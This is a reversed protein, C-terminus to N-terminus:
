DEQRRRCITKKSEITKKVTHNMKEGKEYIDAEFMRFIKNVVARVTNERRM